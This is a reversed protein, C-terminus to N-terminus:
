EVDQGLFKILFPDLVPLLINWTQDLNGGNDLYIAGVLAKFFSEALLDTQGFAEYQSSYKLIQLEKCMFAISETDCFIRAQAAMKGPANTPFVRFLFWTVLVHLTSDGLFDLLHFASGKNFCALAVFCVSRFVYGLDDQIKGLMVDDYNIGRAMSAVRKGLSTIEPVAKLYRVNVLVQVTEFIGRTLYSEGICIHFYRSNSKIAVNIDDEDNHPNMLTKCWLFNTHFDNKVLEYLRGKDECKEKREQLNSKLQQDYEDFYEEAVAVTTLYELVILGFIGFKLYEPNKQVKQVFPLAQNNKSSYSPMRDKGMMM